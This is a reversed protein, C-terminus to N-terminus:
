PGPARGHAIAWAGLAVLLLAAIALLVVSLPDPRTREVLTRAASRVAPDESSRELARGHVRVAAYDGRAFADVLADLEPSSPFASAFAPRRAPQGLRREAGAPPMPSKSPSMNERGSCTAFTERPSLEDDNGGLATVAYSRLGYSLL